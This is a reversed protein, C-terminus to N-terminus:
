SCCPEISHGSACCTIMSGCSILHTVNFSYVLCGVAEHCHLASAYAAVLHVKLGECQYETHFLAVDDVSCLVDDFLIFKKRSLDFQVHYM